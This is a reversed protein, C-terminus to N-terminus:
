HCDRCRAKPVFCWIRVKVPPFGPPAVNVTYAVVAVGNVYDDTGIDKGCSKRGDLEVICFVYLHETRASAVWADSVQFVWTGPKGRIDMGGSPGAQLGSAMIVERFDCPARPCETPLPYFQTDGPAKYLFPCRPDSPIRRGLMIFQMHAGQDNTNVEIRPCPKERPRKEFEGAWNFCRYPRTIVITRTPLQITWREGLLAQYSIPMGDRTRAPNPDPDYCINTMLPKTASGSAMFAFRHGREITIQGSDGDPHDRIYKEIIPAEEATIFGSQVWLASQPALKEMSEAKTQALPAGGPNWKTCAEASAQAYAGPVGVGFTLLALVTMIIKRM